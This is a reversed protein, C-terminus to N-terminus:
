EMAVETPILPIVHVHRVENMSVAPEVIVDFVLRQKPDAEIAIVRGIVMPEPLGLQGPASCVYDGIQIRRKGNDKSGEEAKVYRHEVDRIAMKGRGHGHLSCPFDVFELRDNRIGGVRVEIPPSDVDTLLQVRSMFPSTQAVRGLLVERAIVAQGEEAENVRGQDIYLQSAVWDDRHIGLEAGREVLLSSRWGMVDRAVVQAQMARRISKNRLAGLRRNEMRLREIIGAQSILQNTLAERASRNEGPAQDIQSVSRTAWHTAFYVLDQLPVLLQTSHKSANTVGPPLIVAIASLVMLSTFVAKKSPRYYLLRM